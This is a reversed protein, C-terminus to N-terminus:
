QTRNDYNTKGNMLVDFLLGAIHRGGVFNIHTYDLNAQKKETMRAISGDGGMAEYLNWFAVRHDSAMKREYSILERVGDMTHLEGDPGRMDRDSMSVVLISAKPHAAKLHNIVEGMQRAYTGYDKQKASAVNLGFHIIILDYPRLSAFSRLTAQPIKGLHQGGSGRMSFNDLVIGHHGDLAVGYFRSGAGGKVTMTLSHMRKSLTRSMINGAGQQEPLIAHTVTKYSVTSDSDVVEVTEEYTPTQQAEGNTFLTEAKDRNATCRINLGAGPTFFVTAVDASDLLAPYNSKQCTVEFSASDYPIFYSGAIGQSTANFGKGRENAHYSRWGHRKTSVTRRFDASVCNIEIFGAGKGGYRKQLMARLDMTLIDGEIYSDGFYAINVNRHSAENLASYFHDMERHIGATDAFDEIAVMGDPVSDVYVVKKVEIAASDIKQEVFGEISDARVEAIVKGEKNRQQIDSMINVRRLDTGNITTRPLYFMATLMSFVILTLFFTNWKRNKMEKIFM